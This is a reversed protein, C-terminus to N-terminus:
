HSLYPGSASTQPCRHPFATPSFPPSV